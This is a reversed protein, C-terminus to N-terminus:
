SSMASGSTHIPTLRMSLNTEVLASLAAATSAAPMSITSTVPSGCRKTGRAADMAAAAKEHIKGLAARASVLGTKAEVHSLLESASAPTAGPRPVGELEELCKRSVWGLVERTRDDGIQVREVGAATAGRSVTQHAPLIPVPAVRFHRPQIHAIVAKHSSHASLSPPGAPM